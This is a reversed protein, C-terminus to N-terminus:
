AGARIASAAGGLANEATDGQRIADFAISLETFALETAAIPPLPLGTAAGTTFPALDPDDSFGTDVPALGLAVALARATTPIALYREVLDVAADKDLSFANVWLGISDVPGSAPEGGITPLPEVVFDVGADRLAALDTTTGWMLPAQGAIFRDLATSSGVPLIGAGSVIAQLIAGGALAGESAVGVDDADWGEFEEPGFLYGGLATLFPWHGPVWETDLVLCPVPTGAVVCGSAFAEATAPSAGLASTNRFQAITDLGIPAAFTSGRLKVGAAAGPVVTPDVTIPEALGATTLTMLWAHPAVYVDPGGAPDELLLDLMEDLEVATVEVDIGTEIEYAAAGDTLPGVLTGPAWIELSSTTVEPEIVMTSPPVTSTTSVMLSTTTTTPDAVASGGSCAAAVLSMAGIIIALRRM